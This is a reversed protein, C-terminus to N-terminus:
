GRPDTRTSIERVRELVVEPPCLRIFLWLGAIAIGLDDMEGIVPLFDPIIDLPWVVYALTAVLLAKALVSVRRDRFLRWYLRIFDPLHTIVQLARGTFLFRPLSGTLAM